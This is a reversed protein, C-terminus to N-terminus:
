FRNEYELIARTEGTIDTAARLRFEENLRYNLGIRTPDDSTLVRLVSVSLNGSVDIGAEAALDLASTRGGSETGVTPFLRLESLGFANGINTVASQFNGLLATGAINALGLVSDGRGLTDIFGGGILAIIESESRSPTSTLELNEFLQSAPGQVEAQVRVTEFGGLDTSLPQTIDGSLPSTAVRTRTVEPVRSVLRLDLEPDLGQNPRFTATNEYGRSLVFQTTFLNVGGRRLRIVGDPRLDNLAGSVNLSGTAEINIIPPRTVAIGNALTLHLNNFEPVTIGEQNADVPTATGPTTGNGNEEPISIEGQALEVEGGIVPNLVSGTVVVNGSAGGRYLGDLNLALQNLNITLPNGFDPDTPSFSSFIPVVGQAVVNGRSFNGQLSDVQIRDLNFNITGTIDTLPEPLAQAAITANSITAIGTAVPEQTTGSVQLQVQGQGGEWAVADTLLNILALGENQVNIDLSIQDSDPTVTAFPLELPISGTIIIPEPGAVVVNSGINFRANAYSFSATASEVPRENLIGASLEVEGIAQPNEITGALTASGNLQGTVDVPLDVFDALMAIPFNTVQLQGSQETGGIQGSFAVLSGDSQIRLPLLTLVGDEFNGQAIVQDANYSGWQWDQGQLDFNATVGAPLSGSVAVTGSFRGQFDALEPLPSADQRQQRQQQLLTTIESYRRIQTLLPAEPLGVPTTNLTDAGAYTPPETGRQFDALDFYRLAALVTQVQGNAIDVQADFEPGAPTQTLSGAFAYRSDGQVFEGGTLTGTGDAFRIQGVFQNGTLTGIAPEAIAVNGAVALTTPNVTLNGTLQGSIPATGLVPLNPSLDLAVLPFNEINVLLNEGVSRGTAVAADRRVLFSVPRNEADLNLAIQDQGGSVDLQLGEAATLEVNGTLQPAFALNNVALNQLQLAGVVNLATLTGTINGAFDASGALNVAAPLEFPLDQLSYDQAQVNLNLETVEPAGSPTVQAFILGSARLNPATAQEVIVRDGDWGVTATLPQQVPGIGQSFRLNGAARVDALDFSAVTGAVRLQGNLQGQLQESFRALQVQSANVLAQWRGQALQINSATVTGGAVDLRGSGTGVITEPQFATTTGALNFSGTLAGQFQPPVQPVLNGLQVGSAQVQARWRGQALQINSATVTGGAVNLRGSGTAQIQDPQFSATSGAVNFTGSIPAQLAPPVETVRGLRVNAAQVTAQWQNNTLQGAARLTGGAFDVTTNRFLLNQANAILIQGRAPYTANAAQWNVITQPQTPSGVVNARAQITGIQFEPTADYLRAIADGPINRANLNFGLGPTEGIQVTGGGTIQGGVTPVAQIDKFAVVSATPSFAFRASINKFDVRDIRAQQTTTVSGSLTPQEIPGSLQVEARAEGAIPVPLDLGLTKQANAFSVAPVKAAINFGAETNLVGNAIAPISGYSTHVNDLWIQTGQFGLTGNSNNFAQPLQEVQATVEKLQATGFLQQEQGQQWRVNLNGDVRGGQLDIPLDILRTVESALINQAQIQLNTRETRFQSEGQIEINGETALNGSINYRILENNDLFQGFGNVQSVVIPESSRAIPEGRAEPNALLAVNANRFQIRDLETRIPGTGEETALTTAIWRGEADQELYVDPNVLTVDLRLTRTILLQLPNFAVDVATVSARDPDTATAPIASAGFRLGTPSFREVRGLEVPRNLTQTLNREVLPALQENVFTWLWWGGAILGLLVPAGIAIGTRYSLLSRSNRQARPETQNDLDPPNKM